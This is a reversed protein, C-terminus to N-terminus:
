LGSGMVAPGSRWWRREIAMAENVLENSNQLVKARAIGDVFLRVSGDKPDAWQLVKGLTGVKYLHEEGPADVTKEMTLLLIEINNEIANRVAAVGQKTVANYPRPMKPFTVFESQPLVPVIYGSLTEQREVPRKRKMKM